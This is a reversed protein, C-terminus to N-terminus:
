GIESAVRTFFKTAETQVFDETIKDLSFSGVPAASAKTAVNILVTNKAKRTPLDHFTKGPDKDGARVECLWGAKRLVVAVEELAPLLGYEALTAEGRRPGNFFVRDAEDHAIVVYSRQNSPRPFWPSAPNGM